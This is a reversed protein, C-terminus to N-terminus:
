SPAVGHELQDVVSRDDAVEGLRRDVAKLHAALQDCLASTAAPPLHHDVAESVIQLMRALGAIEDWGSAEPDLAATACMAFGGLGWAQTLDGAHCAVEASLLAHSAFGLDGTPIWSRQGGRWDFTV